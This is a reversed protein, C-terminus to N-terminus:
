KVHRRFFTVVDEKPIRGEAVGWTLEELDKNAAHVRKRNLAIFVEATALATRRNGDVFPHNRCLHFFYAAAMAALDRHLFRGEFTAAPMMVASELLGPDRLGLTGGFEVIMRRHITLVDATALFVPKM